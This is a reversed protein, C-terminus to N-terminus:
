CSGQHIAPLSPLAPVKPEISSKVASQNCQTNAAAAPRAPTHPQKRHTICQHAVLNPPTAAPVHLMYPKQQAHVYIQDKNSVDSTDTVSASEPDPKMVVRDQLHKQTQCYVAKATTCVLYSRHQLLCMVTGPIWIGRATDLISVTQGPFLPLVTHVNQDHTM